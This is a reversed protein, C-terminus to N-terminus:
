KVFILNFDGSTIIKLEKDHLIFTEAKCLEFLYKEWIAGICMMETMSIKLFIINNNSIKYKGSGKNCYGSLEVVSDNKFNIYIHRDLSDPYILFSNQTKNEVKSLCWNSKQILSTDTEKNPSECANITIVIFLAALTFNILNM